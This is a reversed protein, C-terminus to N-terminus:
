FSVIEIQVAQLQAIVSEMKEVVSSLNDVNNQGSNIAGTARNLNINFSSSYDDVLPVNCSISDDSVNVGVKKGDVVIEVNLSTVKCSKLKNFM